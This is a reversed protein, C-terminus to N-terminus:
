SYVQLFISLMVPGDFFDCLSGHKVPPFVGDYCTGKLSGSAPPTKDGDDDTKLASRLPQHQHGSMTSLLPIHLVTCSATESAELRFLAALGPPCLVAELFSTM